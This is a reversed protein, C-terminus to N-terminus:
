KERVFDGVKTGDASIELTRPVSEGGTLTITNGDITYTGNLGADYMWETFTGDPRLTLTHCGGRSGAPACDGKYVREETIVTSTATGPEGTTPTSPDTTTTPPTTSTSSTGNSKCAFLLSALLLARMM